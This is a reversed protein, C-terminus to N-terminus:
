INGDFMRHHQSHQEATKESELSAQLEHQSGERECGKLLSSREKEERGKLDEM